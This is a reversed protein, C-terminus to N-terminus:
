HLHTQNIVPNLKEHGKVGPFSLTLVTPYLGSFGKGAHTLEYNLFFTHILGKFLRRATTHSFRCHKKLVLLRKMLEKFNGGEERPKRETLIQFLDRRSIDAKLLRVLSHLLFAPLWPSRCNSQDM